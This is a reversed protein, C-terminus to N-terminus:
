WLVGHARYKTLVDEPMKLVVQTQYGFPLLAVMYQALDNLNLWQCTEPLNGTHIYVHAVINM